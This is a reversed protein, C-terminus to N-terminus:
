LQQTFYEASKINKLYMQDVTDNLESTEKKIKKDPHGIPWVSYQYWVNPNIQAKIDL